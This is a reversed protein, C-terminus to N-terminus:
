QQEDTMPPLEALRKAADPHVVFMLKHSGDEAFDIEMREVADIMADYTLPKGGSGVTSTGDQASERLGDILQGELQERGELASLAVMEVWAAIDTEIFARTEIAMTLDLTLPTTRGLSTGPPADDRPVHDLTTRQMQSMFGDAHVVAHFVENYFSRFAAEYEPFLVRRVFSDEAM